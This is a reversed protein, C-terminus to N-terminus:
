AEKFTERTVIFQQFPLGDKGLPRPPLFIAGMRKLWKIARTHRCDVLNTLISYRKFASRFAANTAKQFAEKNGEVLESTLCWMGGLGPQVHSLDTQGYIAMPSGNVLLAQAGQDDSLSASDELAELPSQCDSAMVEDADPERMYAALERLHDPTALVVTIERRAM